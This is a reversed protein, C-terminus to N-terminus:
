ILPHGMCFCWGMTSFHCQRPWLFSQVVWHIPGEMAAAWWFYYQAMNTHGLTAQTGIGTITSWHNPFLFNIDSSSVLKDLHIADGSLGGSCCCHPYCQFFRRLVRKVLTAGSVHDLFRRSNKSSTITMTTTISPSWDEFITELGNSIFSEIWEPSSSPLAQQLCRPFVVKNDAPPFSEMTAAKTPVLFDLNMQQRGVGAADGRTCFNRSILFVLHYFRSLKVQVQTLWNQPQQKKSEQDTM